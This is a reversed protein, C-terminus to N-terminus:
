ETMGHYDFVSRCNRPSNEDGAARASAAGSPVYLPPTSGQYKGAVALPPDYGPTVRQCFKHM